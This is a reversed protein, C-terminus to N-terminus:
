TWRLLVCGRAGNGGGRWTLGGATGNATGYAGGGGGGGANDYFVSSTSTGTYPPGIDEEGNEGYYTWGSGYDYRAGAGRSGRIGFSGQGGTTPNYGSGGGGWGLEYTQGVTGGYLLNYFSAPNGHVGGNPSAGTGGGGGAGAGGGGFYLVGNGGSTGNPGVSGVAGAYASAGGGNEGNRYSTATSSYRTGGRGGGSATITQNGGTSPTISSPSGATPIDTIPNNNVASGGAGCIINHTGTFYAGGSVVQGGAGGGGGASGGAGGGGVLIYEIYKRGASVTITGTSTWGFIAYKYGNIDTGSYQANLTIVQSKSYGQSLSIQGSAVGLLKRLESDNLSRPTKSPYGLEINIDDLSIKGTSPTAM